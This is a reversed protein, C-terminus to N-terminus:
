GIIKENEAYKIYYDELTKVRNKFSFHDEIRKRGSDAYEACLMRDDLLQIVKEALMEADGIPCLSGTQGDVVLEPVGAVATSVVPVKMAMAELVTNPLGEMISTMLFIDFSCYIDLLDNRHGTFYISRELGLFRIEEKMETLEKTKGEGVIVFKTNPVKEIVKKAVKFFTSFDKQYDIRAVTGVLFDNEDLQLEDRLVPRGNEKKWATIDIGNYLVIVDKENFRLKLLQNKSAGSVAMLPMLYQKMLFTAARKKISYDLYHLRTPFDSRTYELLLHCTYIIKLKPNLLKLAWGYLSTKDDHAHLVDIKNEKILRNVKLICSFDIIRRDAVEVYPIGLARARDTIQFEKDKPDRLYTVLVYVRKKNHLKASLLITKDPGGGGKYTGRFDMVRVPRNLDAGM